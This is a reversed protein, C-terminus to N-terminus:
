TLLQWTKDKEKKEGMKQVAVKIIQRLHSDSETM